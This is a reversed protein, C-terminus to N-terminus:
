INRVRAVCVASRECPVQACVCVCVCVCVSLGVNDAYARMSQSTLLAVLRKLESSTGVFARPLSALLADYTPSSPRQAFADIFFPDV